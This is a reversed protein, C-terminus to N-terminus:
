ETSLTFEQRLDFLINNNVTEFSKSFYLYITDLYKSSNLTPQCWCLIADDTYCKEQIWVLYNKSVVVYIGFSLVNLCEIVYLKKLYKM